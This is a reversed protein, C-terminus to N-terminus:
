AFKFLYYLTKKLNPLTKKAHNQKAKNLTKITCDKCGFNKPKSGSTFVIRLFVQPDIKLLTQPDIKPLTQPDM